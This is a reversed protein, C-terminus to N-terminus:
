QRHGTAAAQRVNSDTRPATLTELGARAQTLTRDYQLAERYLEAAQQKNGQSAMVFALNCRAQGPSLVKEFCELSEQMRGQQGISLGLNVWGKTFTPDIMVAANFHHEAENWDGRTYHFYGLDNPINPNDPAAAIANAFEEQAKADAGVRDYLLALSHPLRPDKEGLARAREFHHIAEPYHGQAAMSDGLEVSLEISEKNPLAKADELTARDGLSHCGASTLCVGLSLGGFYAIWRNM